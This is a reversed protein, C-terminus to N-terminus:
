ARPINRRTFRRGTNPLPEPEPKAVPEPTTMEAEARSDGPAVAVVANRTTKANYLCVDARKILTELDPDTARVTAVGVSITCRLSNGAVHTESEAVIKRLSEAVVVACPLSTEPLLVVYEEGGLRCVVDTERERHTIRTALSRIVEDGADHGYTDNIRKFHDIDILLLSLPREYRRARQLEATGLTWLHRRNYAGTLADRNAEDRLKHEFMFQQVRMRIASSGLVHTVACVLAVTTAATIIESSEPPHFTLGVAVIFVTTFQIRMLVAVTPVFMASGLPILLLATLSYRYGHPLIAVVTGFALILGYLCAYAGRRAYPQDSTAFKYAGFTLGAALLRLVTTYLAVNPALVWDRIAFLLLISIVLVMAVRGGGRTRSMIWLSFEDAQEPPLTLSEGKPTTPDRRLLTPLVWWPLVASDNLV